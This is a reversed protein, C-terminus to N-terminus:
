ELVDFFVPNDAEPTAETADTDIVFCNLMHQGPEDFRHERVITMEPLAGHIREVSGERYPHHHYGEPSPEDLFAGTEIDAETTGEPVKWLALNVRADAENTLAFSVTEGVAFTPPGQYRCATGDFTLTPEDLAALTTTVEATTTTAATTSTVAATTDTAPAAPPASDDGTTALVVGAGIVVVVVFAAAAAWANRWWPRTETPTTMGSRRQAAEPFPGVIVTGPDIAVSDVDIPETTAEYYTRLQDELDPM